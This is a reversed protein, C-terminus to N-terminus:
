SSETWTFDTLDSLSGQFGSSPKSPDVRTRFMPFTARTWRRKFHSPSATRTVMQRLPLQMRMSSGHSQVSGVRTGKISSASPSRRGFPENMTGALTTKPRRNSKQSSKQRRATLALRWFLLWSSWFHRWPRSARSANKKGSRAASSLRRQVWQARSPLLTSWVKDWSAISNQSNAGLGCIKSRSLKAMTNATILSPKSFLRSPNMKPQLM